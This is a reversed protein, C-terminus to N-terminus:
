KQKKTNDLTNLVVKMEEDSPINSIRIVDLDDFMAKKEPYEESVILIVQVDKELLGQVFEVSSYASARVAVIDGQSVQSLRQNKFINFQEEPFMNEILFPADDLYINTKNPDISSSSNEDEEDDYDYEDDYDGDYDEDEEYFVKDLWRRAERETFKETAFVVFGCQGDPYVSFHVNDYQKGLELSKEIADELISALEEDNFDDQFYSTYGVFKDM